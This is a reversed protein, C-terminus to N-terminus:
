MGDYFAGGGLRKCQLLFWNAKEINEEKNETLAKKRCEWVSMICFTKVKEEGFIVILEELCEKAEVREQKLKTANKNMNETDETMKVCIHKYKPENLLGGILDFELISDAKEIENKLNDSFALLNKADEITEEILKLAQKKLEEVKNM